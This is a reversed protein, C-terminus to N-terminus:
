AHNSTSAPPGRKRWARHESIRQRALTQPLGSELAFVPLYFATREPTFAADATTVSAQVSGKPCCPCVDSVMALTNGAGAVPKVTMACKHKGDRRCCAPIEPSKTNAAVAVPVTLLLSNLVLLLLASIRRFVSKLIDCPNEPGSARM